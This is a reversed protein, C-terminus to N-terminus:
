FEALSTAIFVNVGCATMTHWNSKMYAVNDRPIHLKVISIYVADDQTSTYTGRHLRDFQTSCTHVTTSAAMQHSDNFHTRKCLPSHGNCICTKGSLSQWFVCVFPFVVINKSKLTHTLYRLVLSVVVFFMAKVNHYNIWHHMMTQQKYAM